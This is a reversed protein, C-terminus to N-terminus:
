RSLKEMDCGVIVCSPWPCPRVAQVTVEKGPAYPPPYAVSTGGRVRRRFSAPFYTLNANLRAAQEEPLNTIHPPGLLTHKVKFREQLEQAFAYTRNWQAFAWTQSWSSPRTVTLTLTLTSTLTPTLTRTDLNPNPNPDPKPNPNPNPNPHDLWTAM